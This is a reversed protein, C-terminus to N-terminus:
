GERWFANPDEVLELWDELSMEAEDDCREFVDHEEDDLLIYERECIDVGEVDITKINFVERTELNVDATTEVSTDGDWISVYPVDHLINWNGEPCHEAIRAILSAADEVSMYEDNRIIIDCINQMVEAAFHKDDTKLREFVEDRNARTECMRNHVTGSSATIGIILCENGLRDKLEKAGGPELIILGGAKLNEVPTGYLNGAYADALIIDGANERRTFEEISLFEYFDDPSRRKRTTCTKIRPMNYRSTLIGAIASKGSGSRGVLVITKM